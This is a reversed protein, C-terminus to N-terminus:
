KASDWNTNNDNNCFVPDNNIAPAIEALTNLNAPANSVTNAIANLVYAIPEYNTLDVSLINNALTLPASATLKLQYKGDSTTVTYYNNFYANTTAINGNIINLQNQLNAVDAIQINQVFSFIAQTITQITSTDSLLNLSGSDQNPM